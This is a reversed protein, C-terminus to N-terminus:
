QPWPCAEGMLLEHKSWAWKYCEQLATTHEHVTWSRSFSGVNNVHVQYRNNVVDKYFRSSSPMFSKIVEFKWPDGSPWARISGKKAKKVKVAKSLYDIYEDRDLGMSVSRTLKNCYDKAACLFMFSLFVM